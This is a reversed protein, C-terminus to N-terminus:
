LLFLAMHHHHKNHIHGFSRADQRHPQGAQCALLMAVAFRYLRTTTATTLHHLASNINSCAQVHHDQPGPRRQRRPSMRMRETRAEPLGVNNVLCECSTRDSLSDRMSLLGKSIRRCVVLLTTHTTSTDTDHPTHIYAHATAANSCIISGSVRM